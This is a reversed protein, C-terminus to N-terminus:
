VTIVVIFGGDRRRGMSGGVRLRINSQMHLVKM